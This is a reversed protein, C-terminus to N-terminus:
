VLSHDMHDTQNTKQSQSKWEKQERISSSLLSTSAEQLGLPTNLQHLLLQLKTNNFKATQYQIVTKLTTINYM